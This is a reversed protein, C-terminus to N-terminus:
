IIVKKQKNKLKETRSKIHQAENYIRAELAKQRKLEFEIAAQAIEEKEKMKEM